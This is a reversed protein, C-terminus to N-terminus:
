TKKLKQREERTKIKHCPKCVCQFDYKSVFGRDIWDDFTSFGTPPVIAEIHDAQMWAFPFEVKCIACLYHKALRGTAPNIKTQTYADKICQQKPPYRRFASRLASIIFAKLKAHTWGDVRNSLDIM